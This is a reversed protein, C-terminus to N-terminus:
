KVWRVRFFAPTEPGSQPQYSLLQPSVLTQTSVTNWLIPPTLSAAQEVRYVKGLAGEWQIAGNSQNRLVPSPFLADRLGPPDPQGAKIYHFGAKWDWLTWGLGQQDMLTRIARHFNLRSQPDAKDYCGFEGVHVPRGYYDAWARVAQLRTRFAYTSSPNLDTSRTNYLNFWDIVWSHTISSDPPLPAPPPGPFLVGTTATDPLAWEAGQHTFYYPDYCHVVTILNTEADPLILSSTSEIKLEDMGNWQGPGLFITRDPNTLRIQRIAEPYVQNLLVTTAAGNPENLLEFAVTSPANAYHAAVQRWIAYFKGQNGEPDSMFQDFSHLDVLVGLGEKLAANVMSDVSTFISTALTFTPSPGVYLHWAVPVRVHDFGEARALSFDGASYTQTRAPHGVPYELYNGMGVGRMFRLAAQHAPTDRGSIRKMTQATADPVGAALSLLLVILAAGPQIRSM